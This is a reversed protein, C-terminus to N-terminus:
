FERVFRRLFNIGEEVDILRQDGMEREVTIWGEYEVETLTAVFGMWDIDGHGLPVEQSAMSAGSIRADKADVHVIKGKLARMSETVDFGHLLLNAPDFNVGLSGTDFHDLFASLTAGSELGTEFALITGSRDGHAALARVAETMSVGYPSDWEDQNPIRGAQVIVRPAGLDFSQTMVQSIQDLRPQQDEPVALGRRLPCGVATLELNHSRLLNRVERRGTESLRRPSLDGVADFRVGRVQLQQAKLLAKRFPLGLSELRAGLRFQNM